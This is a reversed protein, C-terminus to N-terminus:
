AAAAQLDLLLQQGATSPPCTKAAETYPALALEPQLVRRWENGDWTITLMLGSPRGNAPRHPWWRVAVPLAEGEELVALLQFVAHGQDDSAAKSALELLKSRSSGAEGQPSPRTAMFAVAGLAALMMLLGLAAVLLVASLM